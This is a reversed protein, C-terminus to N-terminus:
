RIDQFTADGIARSRSPVLPVEATGDNLVDMANALFRTLRAAPLPSGAVILLVRPAIESVLPV